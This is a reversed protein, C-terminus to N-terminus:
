GRITYDAEANRTMNGASTIAVMHKILNAYLIFIKNLHRKEFIRPDKVIQFQIASKWGICEPPFCYV